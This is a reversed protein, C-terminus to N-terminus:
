APLTNESIWRSAHDNKWHHKWRRHSWLWMDPNRRIVNELFRVYELTLQGEKLQCTEQCGLTLTAHYYGRRPKEIYAFVVPLQANRAGKEPGWIFPAPKGFFDLWYANEVCGPNQDAVLGLLYQTGQYPAISERMKNAPLFVNGSRTRLRYFLKEFFANKIPM